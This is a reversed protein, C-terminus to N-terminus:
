GAASALAESVEAVLEDQAIERQDGSGLDKLTVAGREAEAPGLILAWRAGSRDAVKLQAKLSRADFALDAAVG